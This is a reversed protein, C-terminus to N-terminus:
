FTFNARPLWLKGLLLEPPWQALPSSPCPPPDTVIVLQEAISTRLQVGRARPHILILVLRGELLRGRRGEHTDEGGGFFAVFMRAVRNSTASYLPM